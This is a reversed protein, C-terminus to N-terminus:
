VYAVGPDLYTLLEAPGCGIDLVHTLKFARVYAAITALRPVMAVSQLYAYAGRRYAEDQRDPYYMAARGMPDPAKVKELMAMNRLSHHGTQIGPALGASSGLLRQSRRSVLIRTSRGLDM